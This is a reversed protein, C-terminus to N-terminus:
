AEREGLALSEAASWSGFRITITALWPRRRGERFPKQGRDGAAAADRIAQLIEEDSWIRPRPRTANLPLDAAALAANWTGFVMRVRAPSPWRTRPRGELEAMTPTHGLIGALDRLAAIVGSATWKPRRGGQGRDRMWEAREGLGAALRDREASEREPAQRGQRGGTSKPVGRARYWYPGMGAQVRQARQGRRAYPEDRRRSVGGLRHRDLRIRSRHVVVSEEDPELPEVESVDEAWCGAATAKTGGRVGILGRDIVEDLLSEGTSDSPVM